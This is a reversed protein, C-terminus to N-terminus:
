ASDWLATYNKAMDKKLIKPIHGPTSASIPSLLSKVTSRRSGDVTSHPVTERKFNHLFVLTVDM